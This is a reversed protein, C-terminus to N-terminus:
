LKVFVAPQPDTHTFGAAGRGTEVWNVQDTINAFFSGDYMIVYVPPQEDPCHTWGM